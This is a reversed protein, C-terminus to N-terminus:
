LEGRQRALTFYYKIENDSMGFGTRLNEIAKPTIRGEPFGMKEAWTIMPDPAGESLRSVNPSAEVAAKTNPGESVKGAWKGFRGALGALDAEANPNFSTQATDKASPAQRPPQSRLSDIAQQRQAPDMSIIRQEAELLAAREPNKAVWESRSREINLRSMENPDTVGKARWFEETGREPLRMVEGGGGRPAGVEPLRSVEGMPMFRKRADIVDGVQQLYQQALGGMPSAGYLGMM